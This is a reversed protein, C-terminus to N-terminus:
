CVEDLSWVGTATLNTTYQNHGLYSGNARLTMTNRTLVTLTLGTASASM